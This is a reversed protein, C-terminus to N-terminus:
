MAKPIVQCRPRAAPQQTAALPGRFPWNHTSPLGEAIRVLFGLFPPAGAPPRPLGCARNKKRFGRSVQYVGSVQCMLGNFGVSVPRHADLVWPWPWDSTLPLVRALVFVLVLCWLGCGMVLLWM